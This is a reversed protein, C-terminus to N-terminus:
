NQDRSSRANANSSRSAPQRPLIGAAPKRPPSIQSDASRPLRTWGTKRLSPLSSANLFSQRLTQIVSAIKRHSSRVALEREDTSTRQNHWEKLSMFTFPLSADIAVGVFNLSDGIVHEGTIEAKCVAELFGAARLGERFDHGEMWPLFGVEQGRVTVMVGHPDYDRGERTLLATCRLKGGSLLKDIAARHRAEGVVPLSYRDDGLLVGRGSPPLMLERANAPFVM